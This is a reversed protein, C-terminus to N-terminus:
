AVEAHGLVVEGLAGYTGDDLRGPGVFNAFGGLRETQAMLESIKAQVHEARMGILRYATRGPVAPDEESDVLVRHALAVRQGRRLNSILDAVVDAM